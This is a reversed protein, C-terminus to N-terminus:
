PIYLSKVGFHAINDIDTYQDYPTMTHGSTDEVTVTWFYQGSSLSNMSATTESGVQKDLLPAAMDPTRSVLIHYSLAEGQLDYSPEWQFTLQDQQVRPELLRFPMPRELSERYLTNSSESWAPLQKLEQERDSIRGPLYGPDSSQLVAADAIQRYGAIMQATQAPTIIKRFQDIKATLLRVHDPNQFYRRVLQNDWYSAIGHQWPARQNITTGSLQGKGWASDYDWPIFFWKRSETPSYLLYNESSTSDNDMLINVAMWSLFNNQDFYRDFVSDFQSPSSANVDDLMQLLKQHDKSGKVQLIDQFQHKDFSPDDELKLAEAHRDFKFNKAKYLGGSSDLGHTRLFKKNPQEMQTYLGYDVFDTSFDKEQTLDKVHLRVFSTQMSVMDPLRTMYDFSLRNRFRTLDNVSKILNITSQDRWAGTQGNLKIKYSKQASRLSDSGRLSISSNSQYDSYGFMGHVPGDANGEQFIADLSRNNEDDPQSVESLQEWSLPHNRDLNQHMITIYIDTIGTRSKDEYLAHNDSLTDSSYAEQQVSTAPNVDWPLLGKPVSCGTLTLPLLAAPLLLRLLWRGGAQRHDAGAERFSHLRSVRKNSM